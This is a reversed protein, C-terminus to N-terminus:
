IDLSREECTKAESLWRRAEPLQSNTLVDHWKVTEGLSQRQIGLIEMGILAAKKLKPIEAVRSSDHDVM